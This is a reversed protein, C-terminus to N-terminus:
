QSIKFRSSEILWDRVCAKLIELLGFGSPDKQKTKM